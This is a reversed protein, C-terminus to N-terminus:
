YRGFIEMCLVRDDGYLSLLSGCRDFGGIEDVGCLFGLRRGGRVCVCWLRVYNM